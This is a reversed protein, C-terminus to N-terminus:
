HRLALLPSHTDTSPKAAAARRAMVPLTSGAASASEASGTLLEDAQAHSSGSKKVAAWCRRFTQVCRRGARLHGEISVRQMGAWAQSGTKCALKGAQVGMGRGSAARGV